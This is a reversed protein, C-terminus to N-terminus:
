KIGVLDFANFRGNPDYDIFPRPRASTSQRFRPLCEALSGRNSISKLSLKGIPKGSVIGIRCRPRGTACCVPSDRQEALVHRRAERGGVLAVTSRRHAIRCQVLLLM